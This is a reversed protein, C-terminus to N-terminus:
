QHKNFVDDVLRESSRGDTYKFHKNIFDTIKEEEFDKNYLSTILEDFDQVIKGPVFDTYTEYFDRKSVYDELDYAYFLMPKKFLSFEYVLSSYDSILIDTIFLINNVERYNSVDIFYKNYKKPFKLKNRVFPHMKFLVVSNSEECYKALKAFDIKFFPYYASNHGNGRFTPAFLIVQKDKIQPYISYLETTVKKAYKDNFFIDTRPVGTPIVNSEKIGFAEAYYPIDNDASVYVKTYNRHSRTNFFNGGSKGVRSYGFTKFTGVAHWVQIIEQDKRFNVRYIMPHFDDVFIYKAKGLLYPFKFKDFFNRRDTIHRKFQQHINYKKDKDQRIMERFIYEFNGSMEARSDSTFLVDKTNNKNKYKSWNFILHFIFDRISFSAKNYNRRINKMTAEYFELKEPPQKFSVSLIFENVETSLMPTVTYVTNNSTGSRKFEKGFYSLVFNHITNEDGLEIIENLTEQEENTLELKSMDLLTESVQAIYTYEDEVVILYDDEPLYNGNNVNSLSFRASFKDGKINVENATMVKSEDLNRLYFEPSSFEGDLFRGEVFFQVREWRINDIVVKREKM